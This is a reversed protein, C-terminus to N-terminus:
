LLVPLNIEHRHEIQGLALGNNHHRVPLVFCYGRLPITEIARQAEECRSLAKRLLGIQVRINAEEVRINTWVFKMLDSISVVAGARSVLLHLLDFARGGIAVHEDDQVLARQKPYLRFSAFAYCEESAETGMSWSEHLYNYARPSGAVPTGAPANPWAENGQSQVTM